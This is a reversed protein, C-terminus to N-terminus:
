KYIYTHVYISILRTYISVLGLTENGGGCRPWSGRSASPRAYTAASCLAVTQLYGRQLQYIFGHASSSACKISAKRVKRHKSSLQYTNQHIIQVVELLQICAM